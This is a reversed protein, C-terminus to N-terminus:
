EFLNKLEEKLCPSLIFLEKLMNKLSGSLQHTEDESLETYEQIEELTLFEDRRFSFEKMMYNTDADIRIGSLYPKSHVGVHVETIFVFTYESYEEDFENWNSDKVYFWKNMYLDANETRLQNEIRHIEKCVADYEDSLREKQKKLEELKEKM